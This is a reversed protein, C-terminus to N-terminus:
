DTKWPKWSLLFSNQYLGGQSQSFWLWFVTPVPQICNETDEQKEEGLLVYFCVAPVGGCDPCAVPMNCLSTFGKCALGSCLRASGHLIERLPKRHWVLSHEKRGHPPHLHSEWAGQLRDCHGPLHQSCPGCPIARPMPTGRSHPSGGWRGGACANRQTGLSAAVSCCATVSSVSLLLPFGSHTIYSKIMAICWAEHDQFM